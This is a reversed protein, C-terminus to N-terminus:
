SSICGSRGSTFIETTTCVGLSSSGLLKENFFLMRFRLMEDGAPAPMGDGHTKGGLPMPGGRAQRASSRTTSPRACRGRPPRSARCRSRSRPSARSHARATRRCTRCGCSTRTRGVPPRGPHRPRLRRRRRALKKSTRRNPASRRDGRPLRPAGGSRTWGSTRRKRPAPSLANGARSLRRCSAPRPAQGPSRPSQSPGSLPTAASM